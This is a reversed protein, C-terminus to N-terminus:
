DKVKFIAAILILVSNAFGLEGKFVSIGMVICLCLMTIQRTHPTLDM